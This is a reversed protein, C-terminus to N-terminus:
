GWWLLIGSTEPGSLGVSQHLFPATYTYVTFAGMTWLITLGLMKAVHPRRIVQIREMLRVPAPVATEPLFIVIGVMALGALTAVFDFTWRWSLLTGIITGMPVGLVIAM